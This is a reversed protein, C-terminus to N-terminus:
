PSIPWAMCPTNLKINCSYDRHCSFETTLFSDRACQVKFVCPHKGQARSMQVTMIRVMALITLMFILAQPFEEAEGRCRSCMM